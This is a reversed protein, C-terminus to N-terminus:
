KLKPAIKDFGRNLWMLADTPWEALDLTKFDVGYRENLKGAAYERMKEEPIEYQKLLKVFEKAAAPLEPVDAKPAEAASAPSSKADNTPEAKPEAPKQEQRPASAKVTAAEQKDNAASQEADCGGVRDVADAIARPLIEALKDLSCDDPLKICSRHKAEFDNSYACYAWRQGGEVHQKRGKADNNVLFTKFAVYIIVDAWDTFLAAVSKSLRLEAHDYTKGNNKETPEVKRQTDHALVIVDFGTNVLATLKDLINGMSRKHAAITRGWDDVAFIDEIGKEKALAASLDLECKDATDITLHEFGQHDRRLEEVIGKMEEYSKPNDKPDIKAVELGHTGNEFDIFLNNPIKSALTTKGSGPVGYIVIRLGKPKTKGRIINM